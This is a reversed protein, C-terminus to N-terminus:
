RRLELIVKCLQPDLSNEELALLAARMRPDWYDRIHKATQAVAQAEGQIALNLYIQNAMQILRQSDM